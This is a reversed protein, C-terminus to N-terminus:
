RKEKIIIELFRGYIKKEFPMLVKYIFCVMIGAYLIASLASTIVIQFGAIDALANFIKKVIFENGCLWLTQAGVEHLKGMGVFFRALVVQFMILLLARIVPYVLGTGPIIQGLASAVVDKRVYVLLAYGLLFAVGTLQLVKRAASLEKQEETLKDHFVYGVTYYILYYMASDINFIWSPTVDPRDPLVLISVFYIGASVTLLLIRKKFIRRLIDFLISMSFLCSFFWLSSAYMQNRIGFVFQKGYGLYTYINENTTLIIVIMSIMVFFLYPVIIQSCKKRIAERISLNELRGAFIGSAFFFLPVHYLFVFNYLGGTEKGMHGCFIAMIGFLKFIDIWEIRHKEM